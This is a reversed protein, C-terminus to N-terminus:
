NHANQANSSILDKTKEPLRFINNSDICIFIRDLLDEEAEESVELHSLFLKEWKKRMNIIKRTSTGRNVGEYAFIVLQTSKDSLLRGGILDWWMKDTAGLSMGFICMVNSKHILETATEKKTNRLETNTIDKVLVFSSEDDIEHLKSSFQSHDNVGLLMDLQHTGHIDMFVGKNKHYTRNGLSHEGLKSPLKEYIEKFLSTYNFTIVNYTWTEHLNLRSNFKVKEGPQLDSHFNRFTSLFSNQIAEDKFDIDLKKEEDQLYSAFVSKFDDISDYLDKHNALIEEKETIKGLALEFDAWTEPDESIENNLPWGIEVWKLEKNLYDYFNSYSTKLGSQIDFGNGIFFTINM